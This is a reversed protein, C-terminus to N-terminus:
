LKEEKRRGDLYAQEHGSTHGQGFLPFPFTSRGM